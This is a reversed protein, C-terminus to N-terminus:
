ENGGTLVETQYNVDYELTFDIDRAPSPPTIYCRFNVRGEMLQAESNDEERFEIRGGLLKGENVLGDFYTNVSNVISHVTRPQIPDDLNSWFGLTLRTKVFDFMRRVNIWVDKPDASTPYASTRNGWVKWGNFRTVTVIGQGNLMTAEEDGFYNESGDFNCMGSIFISRNSPSRYPVDGDDSCQKAMLGALHTSLHQVKNGYRVAPYCVTLHPLTYGNSTKLAAAGAYGGILSTDLDAIAIASFHFNITEAKAAMKLGVEPIHSFGPAIIQGITYGFRSYVEKILELGTSKSTLTNVAGVVDTASVTTVDPKDYTVYVQAGMAYTDPLILTTKAVTYETRLPTVLVYEEEEEIVTKTEVTISGALVDGEIEVTHTATVLHLERSYGRKHVTPDFVNVMVVPAVQYLGFLVEMAECLTYKSTDTNYGLQRVAENYTNCLVPENPLAASAAERIPATGVVFTIGASQKTLDLLETGQETVYIGHRYGAM